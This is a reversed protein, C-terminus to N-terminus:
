APVGEVRGARGRQLLYVLLLLVFGPIFVLEKPLQEAKIRVTQIAVPQDAYYDFNGLTKFYPTGQFPEELKVVGDEEVLTLGLATLRAEGGIENGATIVATKDVSKGSVYDPSSVKIRIEEGSPVDGIAQVLQSPQVEEFPPQIRDMFFDPRFLVFSALVLALSEYIRSKTLFHGM